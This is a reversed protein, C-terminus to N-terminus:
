KSKYVTIDGGSTSAFLKEGGNNINGVIKTESLNKVNNLPLNCTVEGGSTLIEAQANFDFPIDIDIDGGSTKLEIGKNEGTYKLQIDGGSTSAYISAKSAYLKIDGGSTKASFNGEFRDGWIDGGSTNLNISGNVGGIKIDGGSTSTNIDFNTPVKIEFKLHSNNLWSWSRKHESNQKQKSKILVEESTSNIDFTFDEADDSSGLIKIYVESKSWPTVSVDGVDTSITIKKGASIQISKERIVKKDGDKAYTTLKLVLASFVVLAVLTKIKM